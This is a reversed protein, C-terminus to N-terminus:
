PPGSPPPPNPPQVDTVGQPCLGIKGWGLIANEIGNKAANKRMKQWDRRGCGGGGGRQITSAKPAPSESSSAYHLKLFFKVGEFGESPVLFIAGGGRFGLIQSAECSFKCGM